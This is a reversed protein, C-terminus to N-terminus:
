PQRPSCLLPGQSCFGLILMGDLGAMFIGALDAKVTADGRFCCELLVGFGESKWSRM